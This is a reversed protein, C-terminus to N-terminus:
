AYEGSACGLPEVLYSGDSESGGKARGGSGGLRDAVQQAETRTAYSGVRYRNGHGDERIVHWPLVTDGDGSVSRM